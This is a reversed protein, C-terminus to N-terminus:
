TRVEIRGGLREDGALEMCRECVPKDKNAGPEITRGDYAAGCLAIPEHLAPAEAWIHRYDQGSGGLVVAGSRDLNV